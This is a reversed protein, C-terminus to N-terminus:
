AVEQDDDHVLRRHEALQRSSRFKLGCMCALRPRSRDWESVVARLRALVDPVDVSESIRALKLRAVLEIAEAHYPDSMHAIVGSLRRIQFDLTSRLRLRRRGSEWVEVEVLNDGAAFAERTWDIFHYIDAAALREAPVSM